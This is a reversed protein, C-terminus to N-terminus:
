PDSLSCWEFERTGGHSATTREYSSMPYVTYPTIYFHITSGCLRGYFDDLTSSLASHDPSFHFSLNPDM